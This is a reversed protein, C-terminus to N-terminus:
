WAEHFVRPELGPVPKPEGVRTGLYLLAILRENDAVGFQRALEPDRTPPGTRWIGAFGLAQAGLLIAHAACGASLQQEWQPVKPHETFCAIVAVILPARLPAALAKSREAESADPNRRLLSELILQGFAERREGRISVFRWPRLWAHDPSRLACRLMDELQAADPAPEGLRASSNRSHLFDLIVSGSDM